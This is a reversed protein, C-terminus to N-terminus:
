DLNELIDFTIIQVSSCEEETNGHDVNTEEIKAELKEEKMRTEIKEVITQETKDIEDCTIKKDVKEEEMKEETKIKM